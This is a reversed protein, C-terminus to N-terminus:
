NEGLRLQAAQLDKLAGRTAEVVNRVCSVVQMDDDYDSEDMWKRRTVTRLQLGLAEVKTLARGLHEKLMEDVCSRAVPTWSAVINSSIDYIDGSTNIYAQKLQVQPSEEGKQLPNMTLRASRLLRHMSVLEDYKAALLQELGELDRLMHWTRQRFERTSDQKAKALAIATAASLSEPTANSTRPSTVTDHTSLNSYTPQITQEASKFIRADQGEFLSDVVQLVNSCPSSVSAIPSLGQTEEFARAVYDDDDINDTITTSLVLNGASGCGSSISAVGDSKLVMSVASTNAGEMAVPQIHREGFEDMVEVELLRTGSLLYMDGNKNKERHTPYAHSSGDLVAQVSDLVEMTLAVDVNSVSSSFVETDQEFEEHESLSPELLCYVDDLSGTPPINLDLSALQDVADSEQIDTAQIPDMETPRVDSNLSQECTDLHDVTDVAQLSALDVFSDDQLCKTADTELVSLTPEISDTNHDVSVHQDSEITVDVNTLSSHNSFLDREEDADTITTPTHSLIESSDVLTAVSTNRYMGGDKDMHDTPELPDKIACTDIALDSVTCDEDLEAHGHDKESSVTTFSKLPSIARPLKSTPLGSANTHSLGAAPVAMVLSSMSPSSRLSANSAKSCPIPIHSRDHGTNTASQLKSQQVPRSRNSLASGKISSGSMAQMSKRRYATKLCSKVPSPRTVSSSSATSDLTNMSSKATCALGANLTRHSYIYNPYQNHSHDGCASCGSRHRPGSFPIGPYNNSM